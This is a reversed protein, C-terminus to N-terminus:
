ESEIDALKPGDAGLVWKRGDAFLTKELFDFVNRMYNACEGKEEVLDEKKWTKGLMGKRDKNFTENLALELPVLGAAMAFPPGEIMYKELLKEIFLDSPNTAGLRPASVNPLAELARLQLRTDLYVDRGITLVPIRRYNVNLLALDPRPM